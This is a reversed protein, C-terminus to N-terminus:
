GQWDILRNRQEALLEMGAFENSVPAAFPRVILGGYGVTTLSDRAANAEQETAYGAGISIGDQTIEFM